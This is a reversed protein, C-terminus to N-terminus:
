VDVGHAKSVDGAPPQHDRRDAGAPEGWRRRPAPTGMCIRSRTM